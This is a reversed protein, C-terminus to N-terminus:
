TKFRTRCVKGTNLWKVLDFYLFTLKFLKKGNPTEYKKSKPREYVVIHANNSINELHFAGFSVKNKYPLTHFEQLIEKNARERDAIMFFYNDKNINKLMRGTRREWKERVEEESAYHQFHIEVDDLLGVPYTKPRDKYKSGATFKLEQAMYHDFNKLLRIYCPGYIFLGVFPTNYPLQYWQYVQGGWCNNSIIVFDKNRLAAKDKKEFIKFHKRVKRRVYVELSRIM